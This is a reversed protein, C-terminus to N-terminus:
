PEPEEQKGQKKPASDSWISHVLVKQQQLYHICDKLEDEHNGRFVFIRGGKPSGMNKLTTIRMYGLEKSAVYGTVYDPDDSICLEAAINPHNAVKTALVLAENFHNKEACAKHLEQEETDVDMYTARVGREKDPELRQLTDADLLIAGRMECSEKWISLIEEIHPLSLKELCRRVAEMGEEKSSTEIVTVPLAKLVMLEKEDIEEIKLNIMDPKGKSHKMARHLLRMCCAELDQERILKEAGSIHANERSARMKISYRKM